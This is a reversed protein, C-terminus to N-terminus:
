EALKKRMTFYSLLKVGQAFLMDGQNRGRDLFKQLPFAGRRCLLDLRPCACKQIVQNHNANDFLWGFRRMKNLLHNIDQKTAKLERNVSSCSFSEAGRALKDRRAHGRRM